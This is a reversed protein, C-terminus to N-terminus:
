VNLSNNRVIKRTVGSSPSFLCRCLQEIPGGDRSLVSHCFFCPCRYPPRRRRRRRRFPARNVRRAGRLLPSISVSLHKGKGDDGDKKIEM